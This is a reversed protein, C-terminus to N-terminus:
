TKQGRAAIPLLVHVDCLGVAPLGNRIWLVVAMPVGDDRIAIVTGTLHPNDPVTVGDGVRCVSRDAYYYLPKM